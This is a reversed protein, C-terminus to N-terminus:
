MGEEQEPFEYLTKNALFAQTVMQARLKRRHRDRKNIQSPKEYFEKRQIDKLVVNRDVTKKFRRYAVEIPEGPKVFIKVGM